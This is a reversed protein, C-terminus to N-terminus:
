RRQLARVQRAPEIAQERECLVTKWHESFRGVEAAEPGGLRYPDGVRSAHAPRHGLPYRVALRALVQALAVHQAEVAVCQRVGVHPFPRGLLIALDVVDDVRALLGGARAVNAHRREERPLLPQACDEELGGAPLPGLPVGRVLRQQVREARASCGALSPGGLLPGRSYRGLVRGRAFTGRQEVQRREGLELEGSRARQRRQLTKRGVLHVPGDAGDGVRRHERLAAADLAVEGDRSQGLVAEQNYGATGHAQVVQVPNARMQRRVARNGQGVQGGGEAGEPQPPWPRTVHQGAHAGLVHAVLRKGIEARLVDGDTLHRHQRQAYGVHALKAPLQVRGGLHAQPQPVGQPLGALREAEYGAAAASEVRQTQLLAVPEPAVVDM